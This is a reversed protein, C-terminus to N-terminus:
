VNKKDLTAPLNIVYTVWQYRITVSIVANDMVRISMDMLFARRGSRLPTESCIDDRGPIM